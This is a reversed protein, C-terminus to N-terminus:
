YFRYERVFDDEVSDGVTFRKTGVQAFGHKEYFHNARENFQNVGLWISALRRMQAEELTAAVLDRAQGSGHESKRLYVKSLEATPRRTIVSQVDPDTLEGFITMTYGLLRDRVDIVLIIREKDALYDAFHTVTLNRAIFDAISEQPTTPPCALPFTEAALEALAAADDWGAARIM